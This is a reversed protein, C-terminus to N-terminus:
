TNRASCASMNTIAGALALVMAFSAFPKLSLGSSVETSAVFDGITTAGAISALMNSFEAVWLFTAVSIDSPTNIAPGASPLNADPSIPRPRITSVDSKSPTVSITSPLFPSKEPLRM